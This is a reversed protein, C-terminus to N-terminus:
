TTDAPCNSPRRATKPDPHGGFGVVIKCRDWPHRGRGAEIMKVESGTVEIYTYGFNDKENSELVGGVPDAELQVVYYGDGNLGFDIYNGPRDWEYIDAWGASLGFVGDMRWVPYFTDWERLLEMRHAFGKTRPAGAEELIGKKRDTVQYLQLGIAADHHYHGHTKHYKATGAERDKYSGDANVVRQYLPKDPGAAAGEYFLQMPGRGTNRVGYAFRLCRVAQDEAHEEPHCSELGLLDLGMPPDGFGGNTVPLLFSAEHPPLVQLNPLVAGKRVGLSPERAELKARLRFNSDTVANAQVRIQYTGPEPDLILAEASYLGGGSSIQYSGGPGTVQASYDDDVEPHDLGIRLRHGREAVRVQYTYSGSGEALHPGTWFASEGRGLTAKPTAAGVQLPYALIGAALLATVIRSARMGWYISRREKPGQGLHGNSASRSEGPM